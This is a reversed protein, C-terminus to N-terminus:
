VIQSSYHFLMVILALSHLAPATQDHIGASVPAGLSRFFRSSSFFSDRPPCSQHTLAILVLRPSFFFFAGSESESCSVCVNRIFISAVARESPESTHTRYVSVRSGEVDLVPSSKEGCVRRSIESRRLASLARRLAGRRERGEDATNTRSPKQVPAFLLLIV